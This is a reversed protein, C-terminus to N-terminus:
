KDKLTKNKAGEKLSTKVREKLKDEIIQQLNKNADSYNKDVINSLFRQINKSDKM